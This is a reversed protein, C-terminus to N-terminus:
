IDFNIMQRMVLVGTGMMGLGIMLALHGTKDTFLLSMYDPSTLSVLTCVVIPLSGIIGASAKAESSLAKVKERMLKRARLVVALNNLAESLNGGAKQQISLVITFFSVEPLPNREFMKTMAQEMPIGMATQDVVRRFEGALPEQAERGIMKLCELLPLGSKVGRVIVEISNPFEALFKNQRGKVLFGLVWRPLGLGGAIGAGIAIYFPQQAITVGAAAILAGCASYIWFTSESITLGAQELQAGLSIRAKRMQREKLELDKLNGLLKKRRDSDPDSKRKVRSEKEKALEKVRVSTADVPASAFAFGILLISAAFM